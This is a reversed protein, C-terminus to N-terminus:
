NTSCSVRLRKTSPEVGERGVLREVPVDFVETSTAETSLRSEQATAVTKSGSEGFLIAAVGETGHEERAAWEDAYVTLTVQPNAHGLRSAITQVNEGSAIAATAATHRLSTFTVRRSREDILAVGAAKLLPKWVNRHFNSIQIPCGEPSVFLPEDVLFRRSHERLEKLIAGPVAVTRRSKETKLELAVGNQLQRIM